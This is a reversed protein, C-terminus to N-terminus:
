ANGEGTINGVAATGALTQGAATVAYAGFSKRGIVALAASLGRTEATGAALLATVAGLEHSALRVVSAALATDPAAPERAPLPHGLAAEIHLTVLAAAAAPVAGLRIELADM